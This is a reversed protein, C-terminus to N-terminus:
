NNTAFLMKDCKYILYDREFALYSSLLKGTKLERRLFLYTVRKIRHIDTGIHTHADTQPM